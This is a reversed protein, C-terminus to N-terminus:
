HLMTTPRRDDVYVEVNEYYEALVIAYAKQAQMIEDNGASEPLVAVLNTKQADGNREGGIYQFRPRFLGLRQTLERVDGNRPAFLPCRLEVRNGEGFDCEVTMTTM